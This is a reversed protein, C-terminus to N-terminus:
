VSKCRGEGEREATEGRKQETREIELALKYFRKLIQHTRQRSLSFKAGAETYGVKAISRVILLNREFNFTPYKRSCLHRIKKLGVRNIETVMTRIEDTLIYAKAM